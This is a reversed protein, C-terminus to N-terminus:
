MEALNDDLRDLDFMDGIALVDAPLGKDPSPPSPRGAQICDYCQVLLRHQTEAGCTRCRLFVRESPSGMESPEQTSVVPRQTQRYAKAREAQTKAM